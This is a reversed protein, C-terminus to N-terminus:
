MTRMAAPVLGTGRADGGGGEGSARLRPLVIGGESLKPDENGEEGEEEEEEGGEGRGDAAEV